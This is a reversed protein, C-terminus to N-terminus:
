VGQLFYRISAIQLNNKSLGLTICEGFTSLPMVSEFLQSGAEEGNQSIGTMDDVVESANLLAVKYMNYINQNETMNSVLKGFVNIFSSNLTIEEKIPLSSIFCEDFYIKM